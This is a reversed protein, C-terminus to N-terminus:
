GALVIQMQIVIELVCQVHHVLQVLILVSARLPHHHLHISVIIGDLLEEQEVAQSKSMVM